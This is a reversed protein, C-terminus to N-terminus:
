VTEGRLFVVVNAKLTRGPITRCTFTLLNEAQASCQVGYEAFDEMDDPAATVMVVNDETVGQMQASLRNGSWLPQLLTITKKRFITDAYSKSVADSAGEPAALGTVRNGCLDLDGSMRDGSRRVLMEEGLKDALMQVINVSEPNQADRDNTWFLNGAEDVGPFYTAGDFDGSNRAEMLRKDLEAIAWKSWNIYDCSTVTGISPDAEVQIQLGFTALCDGDRLLAAQLEVLGPVTLVQEAMFVTLLNGELTWATRADELTDYSGGTGDSKRYRILVTDLREPNWPEGSATLTMAVARTNADGQVMSLRPYATRVSLDMQLKHTVIM